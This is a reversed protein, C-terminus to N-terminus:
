LRTRRLQRRATEEGNAQDFRLLNLAIGPCKESFVARSEVHVKADCSVSVYISVSEPVRAADNKSVRWGRCISRVVESPLDLRESRKSWRWPVGNTVTLARSGCLTMKM